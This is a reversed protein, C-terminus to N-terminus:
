GKNRFDKYIGMYLCSVDYYFDTRGVRWVMIKGFPRHFLLFVIWMLIHYSVYRFVNAEQNQGLSFLAAAVDHIDQETADASVNNLSKQRFVPTGDPTLETQYKVIVVSSLPTATVAM